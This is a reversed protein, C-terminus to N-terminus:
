ETMWEIDEINGGCRIYDRGGDLFFGRTNPIDRFCKCAVWDHRYKSEIVSGCNKCRAKNLHFPAAVDILTNKIHNM